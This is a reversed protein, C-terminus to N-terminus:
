FGGELGISPLIIPSHTSLTLGQQPTYNTGTTEGQYTGNFVEVVATLWKTAGFTWKKEIRADVRYFDPLTGTVTYTSPSTGPSCDPTECTQSYPRGSRYFFRAGARWGRGLDYGLVISLVHTSNGAALTTVGGVRQEARSLAYSVFGGLRRTFDRRVFLELGYSREEDANTARILTAFGTARVRVSEPLKLELAESWQYSQRSQEDIPNPLKAPVFIEDTPEQHAVGLASVWSLRPALQLKLSLRPQPAIAVDDRSKYADFRFGPVLEVIRHPRWVLDVYAGGVVDTHPAYITSV